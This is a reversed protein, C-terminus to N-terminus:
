VLTVNGVPGMSIEDDDVLSRCQGSGHGIDTEFCYYYILDNPDTFHRKDLEVFAEIKDRSRCESGWAKGGDIRFIKKKHHLTEINYRSNKIWSTKVDYLEEQKDFVGMILYYKGTQKPDTPRKINWYGFYVSCENKGDDNCHRTWESPYQIKDLVNFSELWNLDSRPLVICKDQNRKKWPELSSQLKNCNDAKIKSYGYCPREEEQGGVDGGAGVCQVSEKETKCERRRNEFGVGCDNACAGWWVSWECVCRDKECPQENCATFTEGNYGPVKIKDSSSCLGQNKGTTDQRYCNSMTRSKQGGGCPKTCAGWDTFKCVCESCPKENCPIGIREGYKPAKSKEFNSCEGLVQRDFSIMNCETRTKFKQGDDCTKSCPTWGSWECVCEPCTTGKNCDGAGTEGFNVVVSKETSSCTRM